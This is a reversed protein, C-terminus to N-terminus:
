PTIQVAEATDAVPRSDSGATRPLKRRIKASPGAPGWRHPQLGRTYNGDNIPTDFADDASWGRRMRTYIAAAHNELGNEALANVFLVRRGHYEIQLNVRRNANNVKQTVFRCNGPEYGKENDIRDITLGDRYGNDMAWSNFARFSNRWEECVTIGRHFYLYAEAYDEMCRRIVNKWKKYIGTSSAGANENHMCGCSGVRLGTLHSIRIRKENGCDCLCLFARQTQGSPQRFKGDERIVTLGQFKQGPVINLKKFLM